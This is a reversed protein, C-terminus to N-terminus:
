CSKVNASEFQISLRGVVIKMAPHLDALLIPKSSDRPTEEQFCFDAYLKLVDIFILVQSPYEISSIRFRIKENTDIYMDNDLYKWVWLKEETDSCIVRTLICHRSLLIDILMCFALNRYIKRRFLYIKASSYLYQVFVNFFAIQVNQLGVLCAQNM